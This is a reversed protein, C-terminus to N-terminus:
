KHMKQPLAVGHVFLCLYSLLEVVFNSAILRWTSKTNWNHKWNNTNILMLLRYENM